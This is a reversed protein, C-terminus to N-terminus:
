KAEIETSARTSIELQDGFGKRVYVDRLRVKAGVALAAAIEAHKRWASVWIKGSSDELEFSAVSLREGMKTSVERVMHKSSVIGEIIPVSMGEGMDKILLLGEPRGSCEVNAFNEVHLELLGDRNSKVRANMVLVTTGEKADAMREAKENWFIVPVRGTEDELVTRMVKGQTGDDREFTSVPYVTRITGEISANKQAKDISAIMTVFARMPPFESERADLPAIQLDGRQGIHLEIEGGRSRRVYGHSVKVIEGLKVRKALEAKDDWSVVKVTGTEDAILLRAVQGNGDPRAFVQPPGVLLVRGYVTVDNLGSVLQGIRIKPLPSEFDIEVKLEAAILRAAAEGTLLGGSADKKKEIARTIEERTLGHHRSLIQQVIEELSM